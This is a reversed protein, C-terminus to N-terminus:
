KPKLQRNALKQKYYKKDAIYLTKYVESFVVGEKSVLNVQKDFNIEHKSNVQQKIFIIEDKTLLFEGYATSTGPRKYKISASKDWVIYKPGLIEMLQIMYIPDTASFMSGGFMAGVYNKNKYNLPIKIKVYHIDKSVEIIRGTTNRYMPSWNFMYKYLQAKTFFRELFVKITRYTM